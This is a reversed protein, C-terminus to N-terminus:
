VRKQTSRFSFIFIISFLVVCGMGGGEEEERRQGEEEEAEM